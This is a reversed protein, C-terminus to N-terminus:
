SFEVIETVFWSSALIIALIIVLIVFLFFDAEFLFIQAWFIQAFNLYKSLDFRTTKLFTYIQDSATINYSGQLISAFKVFQWSMRLPM